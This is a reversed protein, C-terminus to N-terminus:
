LGDWIILNKYKGSVQVKAERQFNTRTMFQSSGSITLVVGGKNDHLGGIGEFPNTTPDPSSSGDNYVHEGLKYDPEWLLVSSPRLVSDSLKRTTINGWQCLSGNMVYSSMQQKRGSNNDSDSTWDKNWKIDVQHDKPCWFVKYNPIYYYWLGAYTVSYLEGLSRPPNARMARGVVSNVSGKYLWGPTSATSDDWNPPAMKERNDGTYMNNAIGAQRMSSTCQTRQAKDKAAALAPLIMSALVAIIAIVVLLEILTFARRNSHAVRNKHQQVSM